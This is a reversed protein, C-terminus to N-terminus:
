LFHEVPRLSQSIHGVILPEKRVRSWLAESPRILCLCYTDYPRKLQQVGSLFYFAHVDFEVSPMCAIQEM